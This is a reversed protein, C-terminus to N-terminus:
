GYINDESIGNVSLLDARFSTVCVYLRLAKVDTQTSDLLVVAAITKIM